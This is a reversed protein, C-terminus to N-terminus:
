RFLLVSSRCARIVSSTTSGIVLSRLRSHSYAGMVVMEAPGHALAAAITHDPEGPEIAGTADLGAARLQAVAADLRWRTADGPAGVTLVQVGMGHFLPDTALAQVAKMAGPRGDFALLMRTVPRFTRGAILIPRRSARVIRELNSGLHGRAFDAAEGRKGIVVLSADTELAAVTELLDGDRLHARVDEVGSAEVRFRAEELLIQAQKRLLRAREVELAQLEEVVSAREPSPGRLSLRPLEPALTERRGLVRLIEVPASLRRAAWGAHDAVSAAYASGDVCALVMAM